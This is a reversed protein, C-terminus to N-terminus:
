AGLRLTEGFGLREVFAERTLDAFAMVHDVGAETFDVVSRFPKEGRPLDLIRAIEDAVM